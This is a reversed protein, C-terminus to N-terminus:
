AKPNVNNLVSRLNNPTLKLQNQYIRYNLYQLVQYVMSNELVSGTVDFSKSFSWQFQFFSRLYLPCLFMTLSSWFVITRPNWPMIDRKKWTIGELKTQIICQKMGMLMPRTWWHWAKMYLFTRVVNNCTDVLAGEVVVVVVVVVNQILSWNEAKAQWDHSNIWPM